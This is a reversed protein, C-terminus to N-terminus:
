KLLWGKKLSLFVARANGGPHNPKKLYKTAWTSPLLIRSPPTAVNKGYEM